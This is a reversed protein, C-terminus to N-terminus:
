SWVVRGGGGWSRGWVGSRGDKAAAPSESLRGSSAIMSFIYRLTRSDSIIGAAVM